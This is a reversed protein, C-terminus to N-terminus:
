RRVDFPAGGEGTPTEEVLELDEVRGSPPGGARMWALLREIAAPPGEAVFEVRGDPLNRVWGSLGLAAAQGQTSARFYVGQVRGTVHGHVRRVAFETM